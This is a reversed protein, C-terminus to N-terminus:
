PREALRALRERNALAVDSAAYLLSLSLAGALITVGDLPVLARPAPGCAALLFLGALVGNRALLAPALTQEGAPGACGCDIGRRGRALALGMALAYGLLLVAAGLAAGRATAPALLGLGIGGELAPLARVLSSLAPEPLVGYDELAARFGQPSRLKHGASFLLLGAGALRLAWALAPDPALGPSV